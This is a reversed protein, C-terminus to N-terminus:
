TFLFRPEAEAVDTDVRELFKTWQALLMPKGVHVGEAKWKLQDLCGNGDLDERTVIFDKWQMTGDIAGVFQIRKANTSLIYAIKRSSPPLPPLEKSWTMAGMNYELYEADDQTCPTDLMHFPYSMSLPTRAPPSSSADTSDVAANENKLAVNANKDFSGEWVAQFGRLATKSLAHRAGKLLGCEQMDDVLEVTVQDRTQSQACHYFEYPALVHPSGANANLYMAAQGMMPVRITSVDPSSMPVCEPLRYVGLSQLSQELKDRHPQLSESPNRDEHTQICQVAQKGFAYLVTVLEDCDSLIEAPVGLLSSLIVAIAPTVLIASPLKPNEFSDKSGDRKAVNNEILSWAIARESEDFLGGFTPTRAVTPQAQASAVAHLVSAAVRRRQQDTTLRELGNTSTYHAVVRHVLEQTLGKLRVRWAAASTPLCTAMGVSMDWIAELLITVCRANTSLARLTSHARIAAVVHQVDRESFLFNKEDRSLLDRKDKEKASSACIKKLVSMLDESSWPLMHFVPNDPQSCYMGARPSTGCIVLFSSKALSALKHVFSETHCRSEFFGKWEPAGAEDAVVSLHMDLQKTLVVRCKEQLKMKISSVLLDLIEEANKTRTAYNETKPVVAIPPIPQLYITARKTIPSWFDFLDGYTAYELAFFTKGSGRSGLVYCVSPIRAYVVNPVHETLAREAELPVYKKEFRQVEEPNSLAIIHRNALVDEMCSGRMYYPLVKEIDIGEREFQRKWEEVPQQFVDRVTSEKFTLDRYEKYLASIRAAFEWQEQESETPDDMQYFYPHAFAISAKQQLFALYNTPPGRIIVGGNDSNTEDGCSGVLAARQKSIPSSCMQCDGSRKRNLTGATTSPALVHSNPKDPAVLPEM